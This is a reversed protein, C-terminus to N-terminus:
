PITASPRQPEGEIELVIDDLFFRVDDTSSAMDASTITIETDPTANRVYVTFPKFENNAVGELTGGEVTAGSTGDAKVVM